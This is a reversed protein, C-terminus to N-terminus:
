TSYDPSSRHVPSALQSLQDLDMRVTGPTSGGSGSAAPPESTFTYKM